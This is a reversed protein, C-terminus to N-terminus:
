MEQMINPHMCIIVLAPIGWCIIYILAGIITGFIAEFFTGVPYKKFKPHMKCEVLNNKIVNLVGLIKETKLKVKNKEEKEMGM